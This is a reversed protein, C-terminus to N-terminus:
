ESIEMQEGFIVLELEFKVDEGPQKDAEIKLEDTWVLHPLDDIARIFTVVESFSGSGEIQLPTRILGADVITESPDFRATTTGSKVSVRSLEAFVDVVEDPKPLRQQWRDCYEQVTALNAEVQPIMAVSRQANTLMDQTLSLEQELQLVSKRGPLYVFMVYAVM